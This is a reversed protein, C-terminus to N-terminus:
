EWHKSSSVCKGMAVINYITTLNGSSDTAAQFLFFFVKWEHDSGIVEHCLFPFVMPVTVSMIKKPQLIVASPSQVWSIFSM